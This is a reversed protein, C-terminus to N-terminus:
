LAGGLAERPGPFRLRGLSVSSLWRRCTSTQNRRPPDSVIPLRQTNLDRTQNIFGDLVGLSKQTNPLLQWLRGDEPCLAWQEAGPQGWVSATDEWPQSGAAGCSGERQITLGGSVAGESWKM